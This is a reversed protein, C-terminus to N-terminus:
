EDASRSSRRPKPASAASTRAGTKKSPAKSSSAKSTTARAPAKASSKSTAKSSAKSSAKSTAAAARKPKAPADEAPSSESSEDAEDDDESSAVAAKSSSKASGGRKWDLRKAQSWMLELDYYLRQDPEFLHVVVEVFDVVVWTTGEDRNSRYAAMGMTDGLDAVDTSVSKMQRQSTGSAVIVYDCVQSHGRVDLLVVDACKLDALLRAAEIAFGRVMEPDSNSYTRTM